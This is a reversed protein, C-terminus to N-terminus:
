NVKMQDVTKPKGRKRMADLQQETLRLHRVLTKSGRTEQNARPVNQRSIEHQGAWAQALDKERVALVRDQGRVLDQQEAHTPRTDSVASRTAGIGNSKWAM